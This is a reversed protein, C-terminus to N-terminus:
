TSVREAAAGRASLFLIPLTVAVFGAFLGAM